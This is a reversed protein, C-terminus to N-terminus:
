RKSKKTKRSKPRLSERYERGLRMAEEFAPDNAFIGEIKEASRFAMECKRLGCDVKRERWFGIREVSSVAFHLFVHLFSFGIGHREM